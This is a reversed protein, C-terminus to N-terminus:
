YFLEPMAVSQQTFTRTYSPSTSYGTTIDYDPTDYSYSTCGSAPWWGYNPASDDWTWTWQCCSAGAVSMSHSYTQTSVTPNEASVIQHMGHGDTLTAEFNKASTSDITMAGLAMYPMEKATNYVDGDCNFHPWPPSTPPSPASMQYHNGDYERWFSVEIPARVNDWPGPNSDSFFEPRFLPIMLDEFGNGTYTDPDTWVWGTTHDGTLLYDMDYIYDGQNIWEVFPLM